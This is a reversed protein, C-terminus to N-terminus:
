ESDKEIRDVTGKPVGAALLAARLRMISDAMDEVDATKLRGLRESEIEGVMSQEGQTVTESPESIADQLERKSIQIDSNSLRAALAGEDGSNTLPRLVVVDEYPWQVEDPELVLVYLTGRVANISNQDGVRATVWVYNKVKMM